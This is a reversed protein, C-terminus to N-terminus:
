RSTPPSPAATGCERYREGRNRGREVAGSTNLQYTITQTGGTGVIALYQDTIYVSGVSGGGSAAAAGVGSTGIGPLIM